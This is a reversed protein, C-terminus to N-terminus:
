LDDSLAEAMKGDVWEKIFTFTDDLEQPYCPMFLSVEVKISNYNGQNRTASARFGVNCTPDTYAVESVISEELTESGDLNKIKVEGKGQKVEAKVKKEAM